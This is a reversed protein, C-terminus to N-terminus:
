ANKTLAEKKAPKIFNFKFIDDEYDIEFITGRPVFNDILSEAIQSEIRDRRVQALGRAGKISDIGESILAEIVNDNYKVSYGKKSLKDAVISM